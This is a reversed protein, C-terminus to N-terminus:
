KPKNINDLTKSLWDACKTYSMKFEESSYEYPKFSGLSKAKAADKRKAFYLRSKKMRLFDHGLVLLGREHRSPGPDRYVKQKEEATGTRIIEPIAVGYYVIFFSTDGAAIPSTIYEKKDKDFLIGEFKKDKVLHLNTDMFYYVPCYDFNDAFDNITCEMIMKADNTAQAAKAGNGYNNLAAIRNTEAKLMVLVASPNQAKCPISICTLLTLTISLLAKM